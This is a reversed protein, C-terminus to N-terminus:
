RELLTDGAFCNFIHPFSRNVLSWRRCFSLNIVVMLAIDILCNGIAKHRYVRDLFWRGAIACLLWILLIVNSKIGFMYTLLVILALNLKTAEFQVREVLLPCGLHKKQSVSVWLSLFLAVTLAPLGYLAFLLWPRSFWSMASGTITVCIVVIYAALFAGLMQFICALSSLIVQKCIGGTRLESDNTTVWVKSQHFALAILVINLVHWWVNSFTVMFVGLYDFFILNSETLDTPWDSDALHTVLALLNDGARQMAPLSLHNLDDYKTHYVFGNRIYAM